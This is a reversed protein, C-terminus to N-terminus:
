ASIYVSFRFLKIYQKLVDGYNNNKSVFKDLHQLKINSKLDNFFANFRHLNMFNKHHKTIFDSFMGTEYCEIGREKLLLSVYEHNVLYRTEKINRIHNNYEYSSGVTIENQTNQIHMSILTHKIGDSNTYNYSVNNNSDIEKLLEMADIHVTIFHGGSCLHETITNMLSTIGAHSAFHKNFENLCCVVNYDNKKRMVHKYAKVEPVSFKYAKSQVAYTLPKKTDGQLYHLKIDVQEKDRIKELRDKLTKFNNPIINTLEKIKAQYFYTMNRSTTENLNLVKKTTLKSNFSPYCSKVILNEIVYQYAASFNAYEEKIDIDQMTPIKGQHLREYLHQRVKQNDKNRSLQEVDNFTLQKNPNTILDYINLANTIGNGVTKDYRVRLPKFWNEKTYRSDQKWQFEVVHGSRIINGDQAKPLCSIPDIPLYVINGEYEKRFEVTEKEHDPLHKQNYNVVHLHGINYLKKSQTHDYIPLPRGTNKISEIVVKFDITMLRNKDDNPKLKWEALVSDMSNVAIAPNYMQHIPTLIIGDVQWLSTNQYFQWIMHILKYIDNSKADKYGEPFAYFKRLIVIHQNSSKLIKENLVMLRELQKTYETVFSENSVQPFAKHYLVPYDLAVIVKDLLKLRDPLFNKKLSPKTLDEGAYVIIDFAIFVFKKYTEHWLFEGDLITDNLNSQKLHKYIRVHSNSSVMYVMDEYIVCWMREGDAKATAAYQNNVYNLANELDLTRPKRLKVNSKIKDVYNILGVATNMLILQPQELLSCLIFSISRSLIDHATSITSKSSLTNCFMTIEVEYRPPNVRPIMYLKKNERVVRAVMEIKIKNRKVNLEIGNDELLRFLIQSEDERSLDINSKENKVISTLLLPMSMTTNKGIFIKDLKVSETIKEYSKRCSKVKGSNFMNLVASSENDKYTNVIAKTDKRVKKISKSTFTYVHKENHIDSSHQAVFRMRNITKFKKDSVEQLNRICDMLNKYDYERLSTIKMRCTGPQTFSCHKKVIQQIYESAM